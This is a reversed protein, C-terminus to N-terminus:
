PLAPEEPEMADRLVDLHREEAARRQMWERGDLGLVLARAVEVDVLILREVLLEQRTPDPLCRLQRPFLAKLNPPAHRSRRAFGCVRIPAQPKAADDRPSPDAPGAPGAASSGKFGTRRYLLPIGM